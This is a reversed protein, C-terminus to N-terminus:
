AIDLLFDIEDDVDTSGMADFQALVYDFADISETRSGHRTINAESGSAQVHDAAVLNLVHATDNGGHISKASVQEFDKTYTLRTASQMSAFVDTSIFRDDGATDHLEAVDNGGRGFADVREFDKTYAMFNDGTMATFADKAIYFDDGQTGYIAAYDNGGRGYADVRDFGLMQIVGAPTTLRTDDPLASLSDDGYSGYIQSHDNGGGSIYTTNDFSYTHVSYQSSSFEGCTELVSATDDLHTGVVTIADDGSSAGIHIDTVETADFLYTLGNIDLMHQSMGLYLFIEDDDATGVAILQNGDVSVNPSSIDLTLTEIVTDGSVQMYYTGGALQIPDVIQGLTGSGVAVMNSDFITVMASGGDAMVANMDLFSQHDADFSYWISSQRVDVHTWETYPTSTLYLRKNVFEPLLGLEGFNYDVANDTLTVTFKDNESDDGDLNGLTDRGDLFQIPQTQKVMYTGPALDNFKYFGNIDTFTTLNVANGVNDTGMLNIEVGMLPLEYSQFIGDNNTDVYSHGSLMLVDAIPNQVVIQANAEDDEGANNNPTSDIDTQDADVVEATNLIPGDANATVTTELTLTLVEGPSVAEDIIWQGAAFQSNGSPTANVLSVGAPLLDQVVVGTADANATLANNTLSLTWSVTDGTQVVSSDVTKTLELDIVDGITVKAEDADDETIAVDGPTSDVDTENATAVFATNVIMTGGALGDDVTTVVTLSETDGLGLPGALTWTDGAFTGNTPTVSVINLGAPVVDNVTVGTAAANGFLANNTLSITWTVTDGSQVVSSDVTKELELDIVSGVTVKADDADDEALNADGPTSDVDNENATVVYASNVLMTGGALGADITTSVTLTQSQGPALPDILTWTSGDFSGGTTSAGIVTLGAPTLDTITVGTADAVANANNTITVTWNVTDGASVFEADVSKELELDIDCCASCNAFQIHDIEIGDGGINTIQMSAVGTTVGDGYSIGFFSDEDTSGMFDLNAIPGGNVTGLSNGNEDFAEFIVDTLETAGDTWVLGASQMLSPLTVTITNGESYYSYGLNNSQGTGDIVGDDGDVSDTLNMTGTSFGPGIIMGDSLILGLDNSNDEFTEIGYVCADCDPVPVFGAPADAESLYPTPGYFVPSIFGAGDLMLRNDLQEIQLTRKKKDQQKRTM